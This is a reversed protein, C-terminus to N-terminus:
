DLLQRAFVFFRGILTGSRVFFFSWNLSNTLNALWMFDSLNFVKDIFFFFAVFIALNLKPWLLHPHFVVVLLITQILTDVM